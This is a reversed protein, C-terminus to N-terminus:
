LEATVAHLRCFAHYSSDDENATFRCQVHIQLWNLRKTGIVHEGQLIVSIGKESFQSIESARRLHKFTKM